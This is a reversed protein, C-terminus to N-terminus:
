KGTSKSPKPPMASVYEFSQQLYPMLKLPDSLMNLPVVVYEKMKRGYQEMPKTKHRKIFAECDSLPLRLGVEGEKSVFSFMHGHISTYPLSKGKREIQPHMEILKDYLEITYLHIKEDQRSM